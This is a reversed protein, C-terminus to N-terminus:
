QAYFLLRRTVTTKTRDLGSKPFQYEIVWTGPTMIGRLTESPIQVFPNSSSVMGDFVTVRRGGALPSVSIVVRVTSNTAQPIALQLAASQSPFFALPDLRASANTNSAPTAAPAAALHNTLSPNVSLLNSLWTQVNEVQSSVLGNYLPMNTTSITNSYETIQWNSTRFAASYRFEDGYGWPSSRTNTGSPEGGFLSVWQSQNPTFSTLNYVNSSLDNFTFFVKTVGANSYGSVAYYNWNSYYGQLNNFQNAQNTLGGLTINNAGRGLIYADPLNNTKFTLVCKGDTSGLSSAAKQGMMFVAANVWSSPTDLGLYTSNSIYTMHKFWVSMTYLGVNSLWAGMSPSVPNGVTTCRIGINVGYAWSNTCISFYGSSNGIGNSGRYANGGVSTAHNAYRSSDLPSGTQNALHWVMVFNTDWTRQSISPTVLSTHTTDARELTNSGSFTPTGANKWYMYIQTNNTFTPLCVWAVLTKSAHDFQEIEHFLQSGNVGAFTIDGGDSLVNDLWTANSFTILVPFDNLPTAPDAPSLNTILIRKQFGYSGVWPDNIAASLGFVLLMGGFFLRSLLTNKITMM